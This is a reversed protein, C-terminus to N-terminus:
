FCPPADKFYSQIYHQLPYNERLTVCFQDLVQSSHFGAHADGMWSDIAVCQTNLNLSEVVQCAAFCSMGNHVGLEVFRRARLVTFLCFLTPILESWASFTCSKIKLFSVAITDTLLKCDLNLPVALNNATLRNYKGRVLRGAGTMPQPCVRLDRDEIEARVPSGKVFKPKRWVLRADAQLTDSLNRATTPIPRPHVVYNPLRKTPWDLDAPNLRATNDDNAGYNSTITNLAENGGGADLLQFIKGVHTGEGPRNNHKSGLLKAA